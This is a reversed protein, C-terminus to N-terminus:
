VSLRKVIDRVRGGDARGKVQSMIQGILQGSATGPPASALVTKVIEELEVDSLPQPLYKELVAIEQEAQAVLDSRGAKSFDSHADRLQKVQRHLVAEVEADSLERGLTIKENKLASLVIQLISLTAADHAKRATQQDTTLLELLSM